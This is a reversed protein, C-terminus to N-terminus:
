DEDGLERSKHWGHQGLASNRKIRGLVEKFYLPVASADQGVGIAAAMAQDVAM